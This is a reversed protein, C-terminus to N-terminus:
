SAGAAAEQRNQGGAELATIIKGLNGAVQKNMEAVRPHGAAEAATIIQLTARRQAHHQPLFDATTLFMPCTLCSNAHPCAKVAPLQCYGNPLAQTARSLQHGTWAADGLPGGPGLTVTEGSANVKRAREWHERVTTDHLRAYHATMAPSDHDLIKRVVEQPVDRNILRTGLTHRWQHPTIHVPKGHEDRIDCRDLWSYLARRYAGGHMAKRGDRNAKVQPFLVTAGGPYRGTARAQQDRIQQVLQEDVPVLAERNMKHNRYRLYPADNSDSVLCDFPLRIADTIRLGCRILILTVLRYAPNDWLGLSAPDEVQAMVHEAVARPLRQPSARPYDEPYFAATAPLTDDWGHRRIAAFFANLSGIYKAHDAKGALEHQLVALYRELLDRDVQGLGQVPVKSAALFQGFRTIARLGQYAADSRGGATVRWRTWRKALAKLWPQPIQGFRVSPQQGPVGLARLRWLDRPYETDWRCGGPHSRNTLSVSIM